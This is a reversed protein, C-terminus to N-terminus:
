TGNQQTCTVKYLAEYRVTRYCSKSVKLTQQIKEQQPWAVSFWPRLPGDTRFYFCTLKQTCNTHLPKGLGVSLFYYTTFLDKIETEFDGDQTNNGTLCIEMSKKIGKHNTTFLGSGPGQLLCQGKKGQLLATYRYGVVEQTDLSWIVTIWGHVGLLSRSSM